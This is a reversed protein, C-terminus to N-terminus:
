SSITSKNKKWVALNKDWVFHKELFQVLNNYKKSLKELWGNQILIEMLGDDYLETTTLQGKSEIMHNAELYLNSEIEELSEEGSRYERDQKSNSFFLLLDGKLSKQPSIINKLTNNKTVHIQGIYDFGLEYLAKILYQWTSLSNEHFYLCMIKDKKLKRRSIELVKFLLDYYNQINKERNEGKSVVIEDELNFHFGLIPAYLQMYESYLVQGLYPPDTILLDVSNNPIEKETINQSPKNLLLAKGNKLESYTDVISKSPYTQKIENLAKLFSTLKKKFLMIANREYADKKPIWLPWQSNSRADTIKLQHLISMMIYKVVYEVTSPLERARYLIEDIIKLNRNTFINTIKDSEIVALRSNKIFEYNSNIVKYNYPKFMIEKEKSLLMSDESIVRKKCHPCVINIAKIKTSENNDRRPKDFIVKDVESEERCQDCFIKYYSHLDEINTAFENLLVELDKTFSHGLLTKTIFVPMENLDIGIAKRENSKKVAELITVGSGMFPDFVIDGKKSLNNILIDIINYSKQSWYLHTNYIPNRNTPKTLYINKKISSINHKVSEFKKKDCIILYELVPKHTKNKHNSHSYKITNIKINEKPYISEALSILENISITYRDKAQLPDDPYAYSLALTINNEFCKKMLYEINEKAKSRKSLDSQYRGETYLGKTFQKNHFTLEPYNYNRAVSLIHYYRSYQMDTYPPDAYILDINKLISENELLDQFPLNFVKNNKDKQKRIQNFNMQEEIKSFFLDTIKQNRVKFCKKPNTSVKLPQAMHGDRSFVALNMAYFLCSYFFNKKKKEMNFVAKIISDIELSQYIGFYTTAYYRTFLNFQNEKRLKEPTLLNSNWVTNYSSYLTILNNIEQDLIFKKEKEIVLNLSEKKILKERNTKIDKKLSEILNDTLSPPTLIASNITAAYNEVDNAYVTYNDNLASAVAGSGSFIDLVTSGETIYRDISTTIFPVLESKSGQYDIFKYNVRNGGFIAKNLEIVKLLLCCCM